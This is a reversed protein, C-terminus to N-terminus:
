APDIVQDFLPLTALARSLIPKQPDLEARASKVMKGLKRWSPILRIPSPPDQFTKHYDSFPKNSLVNTRAIQQVLTFPLNLASNTPAFVDAALIYVNRTGLNGQMISEWAVRSPVNNVVGGDALRWLRHRQALEELVKITQPDDHFVDYCFLGPVSCSFGVAEVVNFGRTEPEHGFVLQRLLKPNAALESAVAALFKIRRRIAFPSFSSASAMRALEREVEVGYDFGVRVGTVVVEFRIPLESFTPLRGTGLLNEMAESAPRLLQMHFAGPFGFRSVGNFPRFLSNWEFHNPVTQILAAPSYTREMARFLGVLAGMSSGVILEPVQGLEEALQFLGLHAFGSGGGGGLVLALKRHRLEEDLTAADFDDEHNQLLRRRTSRTRLAIAPVMHRLRQDDVQNSSSIAERLHDCLWRRFPELEQSLDIDQGSPTRLLCVRALAIAWRLQAEQRTTLASPQRVLWTLLQRELSM